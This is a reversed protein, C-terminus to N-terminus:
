WNDPGDLSFRKEDVFVRNEWSINKNIWSSIALIRNSKHKKSLEIKQTIKKYKYEKKSLWRHVAPRPVSFKNDRIIKNFDVKGHKVTMDQLYRKLITSTRNNISFKPGRKKKHWVKKYNILNQISSRSLGTKKKIESYSLNMEKLRIVEKRTEYSYM